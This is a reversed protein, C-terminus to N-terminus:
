QVELRNKLNEAMAILLQRATKETIQRIPMTVGDKNLVENKIEDPIDITRIETQIDSFLPEFPIKLFYDDKYHGNKDYFVTGTIICVDIIQANGRLFVIDGPKLNTFLPLSNAGNDPNNTGKLDEYFIKILNKIERKSKNIPNVDGWGISLKRDVLQTRAYFSDREEKKYTSILVYYNAM